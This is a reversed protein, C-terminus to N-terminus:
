TEKSYRVFNKKMDLYGSKIDSCIADRSVQLVEMTTLMNADGVDVGGTVM